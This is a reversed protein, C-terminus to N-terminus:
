ALSISSSASATVSNSIMRHLMQYTQVVNIHTCEVAGVAVVQLRASAGLDVECSPILSSCELSDCLQLSFTESWSVAFQLEYLEIQAGRRPSLSSRSLKEESLISQINQTLQV